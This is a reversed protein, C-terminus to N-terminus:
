LQVMLSNFGSCQRYLYKRAAKKVLMVSVEDLDFELADTKGKRHLPDFAVANDLVHLVFDGDELAILTVRIRGDPVQKLGNRIISSVIEEIVLTVYYKQHADAKWKGCFASSEDLLSSFEAADDSVTVRYIRDPDFSQQRQESFHAYIAFLGFSILETVPFAIWVYPDGLKAFLLLCPLAVVLGRLLVGILAGISDERSQCYRSLVINWAIFAAGTCYIRIATVARSLLAASIGFALAVYKAFVILLLAAAFSMVAAARVSLRRVERCDEESQEGLFTSVLPQSAEAVGECLYVIFFSANYIVDFIAVEEEGGLAIMVHNVALLFILQLGSQVSTSAGIKLSDAIEGYDPRGKTFHLVNKKQGALAPLYCCIAVASGIVTSLAAGPTGLDFILVLIINLSFDTINGIVFGRAAIVENNDNRLFNSFVINLFLFPAGAVIIRMYLQCSRYLETGSEGAGLVTLVWPAFLNALLAFGLGCALTMKWISNFCSVARDKKGAGLLGSFKVGGGIGFANMIVNMLMYLPLCLSIAALGTEGMRQGVVLADAMDSIAYGIASFVSPLLMKDFMKKVFYDKKM